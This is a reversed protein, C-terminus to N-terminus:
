RVVALIPKGSRKSDAAADSFNDYHWEKGAVEDKLAQRLEDNSQMGLLAAAAISFTYKIM